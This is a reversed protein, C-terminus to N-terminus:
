TYAACSTLNFYCKIEDILCMYNHKYHLKFCPFCASHHISIHPYKKSFKGEIKENLYVIEINEWGMEVHNQRNKVDHFIM